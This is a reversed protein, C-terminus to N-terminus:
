TWDPGGLNKKIWNGECAVGALWLMEEFSSSEKLVGCREARAVRRDAQRARRHRGLRGKGM